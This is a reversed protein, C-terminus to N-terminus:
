YNFAAKKNQLNQMLHQVVFETFKDLFLVM